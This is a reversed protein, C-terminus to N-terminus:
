QAEDAQEDAQCETLFQAYHYAASRAEEPSRFPGLPEPAVVGHFYFYYGAESPGAGHPFDAHGDHYHLM